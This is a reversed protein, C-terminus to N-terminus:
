KNYLSKMCGGGESCPRDLQAFLILCRILLVPHAKAMERGGGAQRNKNMSEGHGEEEDGHRDIKSANLHQEM